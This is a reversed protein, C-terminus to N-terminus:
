SRGAPIRLRTVMGSDANGSTRSGPLTTYAGSLALVTVRWGPAPCALLRRTAATIPVDVSCATMPGYRRAAIGLRRRRVRATCTESARLLRRGCNQAFEFSCPQGAAATRRCFLDLHEDRRHDAVRPRGLGVDPDHKRCSPRRDASECEPDRVEVAGLCPSKEVDVRM